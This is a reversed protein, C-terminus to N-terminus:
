PRSVTAGDVNDPGRPASIAQSLAKLLDPTPPDNEELDVFIDYESSSMRVNINKKKRNPPPGAVVGRYVFPKDRGLARWDRLPEVHSRLWTETAQAWCFAVADCRQLLQRHLHEALAEEGPREGLTPMLTQVKMEHLVNAVAYAYDEDEPAHYLYVQADGGAAPWIEHTSPLRSLHQRLFTRFDPLGDGVVKDTPLQDDCAALVSQPDRLAGSAKEVDADLFKPAWVIRHFGGAASPDGVRLAARQLQLAVIPASGEPAFGLSEGLLHVSIDATALAEDIFATADSDHPIESEATPVVDYGLGELESRVSHYQKHMDTAPKSLYVKRGNRMSRPAAPAPRPSTAEGDRAWSLKSWLNEELRGVMQLYRDEDLVKGLKFLEQERVHGSAEDISYFAFGEQGRLLEPRRELELHHKCVVIIRRRVDAQGRKRWCQAFYDLENRCNESNLWNRSLVVLLLASEELAQKIIPDFLDGREIERKDRWIYPTPIRGADGFYLTCFDHLHTVFGSLGQVDAPRMDDKRAYSLFIQSNEM